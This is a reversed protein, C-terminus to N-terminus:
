RSFIDLGLKIVELFLLGIMLLRPASDLLEAIAESRKPPQLSPRDM